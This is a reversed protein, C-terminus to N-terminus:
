RSGSKKVTFATSKFIGLDITVEMKHLNNTTFKNRATEERIRENPKGESLRRYNIM